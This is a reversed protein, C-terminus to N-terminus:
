NSYIIALIECPKTQPRTLPITGYVYRIWMYSLDNYFLNIRSVLDKRMNVNDANNIWFCKHTIIFIHIPVNLYLKPVLKNVLDRSTNAHIM